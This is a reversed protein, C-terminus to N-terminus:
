KWWRSENHVLQVLEAAVHPCCGLTEPICFPLDCQHIFDYLEVSVLPVELTVM